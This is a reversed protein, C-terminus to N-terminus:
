LLSPCTTLASPRENQVLSEQPGLPSLPALLSAPTARNEEVGDGDVDGRLMANSAFSDPLLILRLVM